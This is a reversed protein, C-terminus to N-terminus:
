YTYSDLKAKTTNELWYAVTLVYLYGALKGNATTLFRTTFRAPCVAIMVEYATTELTHKAKDAKYSATEITHSAIM